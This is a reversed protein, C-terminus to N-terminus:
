VEPLEPLNNKGQAVLIKLNIFYRKVIQIRM